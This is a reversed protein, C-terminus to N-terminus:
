RGTDGLVVGPILGLITAPLPYTQEVCVQGYVNWDWPIPSFLDETMLKIPPTYNDALSNSKYETLNDFDPGVAIGRTNEVRATLTPLFKRKGQITPLGIDLYLTQVKARFALGVTIFSAAAPLTVQGANNVVLGLVVHGDALANVTKGILHNLGGVTTTPTSVIWNGAIIQAPVVPDFPVSPFFNDGNGDTVVTASFHTTDAVATVNMKGGYLGRIVQGPTVSIAASAVVTINGSVASLTLIAAPSTYPLSLGADLCFPFEANNYFQRSHLREIYNVWTGNIFRKIIFYVADEPGEVVSCTSIFRGQTLHHSWAYVEQDPVFTFCLAVGDNRIAWIVRHPAEAYCWELIDYGYFLHNALSSRDTGTYANTYFNFTADRVIGGRSQIYLVNNNVLIPPVDNAGSSAQPQAAVDAPTVALSQGGGSLLWAGGSTLVIAGSAVPLVSKIQNVQRSALALVIADSDQPVSSQDFNFVSATQSMWINQPNNLSGAFLQRQQFYTVCGPYTGSTPTISPVVATAGGSITVTPPVTNGGKAQDIVIGGIDANYSVIAHGISGDSFTVTPHGANTNAYGAGGATINVGTPQGPTFFDNFLPPQKSFDPTIGNDLFQPVFASGIYGFASPEVTTATGNSSLPGFKYIKYKAPTTGSPKTWNLGVPHAADNNDAAVYCIKSPLSEEGTAQAVATVLYAATTAPGPAKPNATIVGPAAQTPGITMAALSFTTADTRKLLYPPYLTHTLTMVDASQAFKLLPLDVEAYPTVLEFYPGAIAAGNSYIRLYKEGFELVYTLSTSPQFPILRPTGLSKTAAIFETGMRTSAGGRYDVFFNELSAAGAHYKDLDVRAYLNKSLEGSNFNSQIINETM